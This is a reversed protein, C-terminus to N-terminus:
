WMPSAGRRLIWDEVVWWWWGEGAENVVVLV